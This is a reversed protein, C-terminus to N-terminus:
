SAPKHNVAFTDLYINRPHVELIKIKKNLLAVTLM